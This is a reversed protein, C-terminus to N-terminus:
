KWGNFEMIKVLIEKYRIARNIAKEETDVTEMTVSQSANGNHLYYIAWREYKNRIYFPRFDDKKEKTASQKNIGKEKLAKNIADQVLQSINDNNEFKKRNKVRAYRCAKCTPDVGFPKDAFILAKHFESIPKTEGCVSYKGSCKLMEM